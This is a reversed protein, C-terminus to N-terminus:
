VGNDFVRGFRYGHDLVAAIHSYDLGGHTLQAVSEFQEGWIGLGTFDRNEARRAGLGGAHLVLLAHIKSALNGFGTEHYDGACTASDHLGTMFAGARFFTKSGVYPQGPLLAGVRHNTLTFLQDRELIKEGAFEDEDAM